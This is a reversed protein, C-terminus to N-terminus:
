YDLKNELYYEIVDVKYFDFYLAGVGFILDLILHLVNQLHISYACTM